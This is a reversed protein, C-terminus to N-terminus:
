YAEESYRERYYEYMLAKMQQFNLGFVQRMEQKLCDRSIGLKSSMRELTLRKLDSREMLHLINYALDSMGDPLDGFLSLPIKKWYNICVYELTDSFDRRRAEGAIVFDFDLLRFHMLSQIHFSKYFYIKYFPQLYESFFSQWKYLNQTPYAFIFFGKFNNKIVEELERPDRAFIVRPIEQRRLENVIETVIPDNESEAILAIQQSM